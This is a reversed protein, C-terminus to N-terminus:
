RLKCHLRYHLPRTYQRGTAYYRSLRRVESLIIALAPLYVAAILGVPHRLLNLMFGAEPAVWTVTGVINWAPVPPDVLPTNDGKTAIIGRTDDVGIVRHTIVVDPHAPSIYSVVDGIGVDADRTHVLVADGRQMVPRMSNSQVSLLEYGDLRAYIFGAALLLSATLLVKLLVAQYFRPSFHIM